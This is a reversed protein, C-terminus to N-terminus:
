ALLELNLTKLEFASPLLIAGQITQKRLLSTPRLFAYRLSSVGFNVSPFEYGADRLMKKFKSSRVETKQSQVESKPSGDESKSSRVESKRRRVKFKPSRVESKRRRVKFKPSRVKFKRRGEERKLSQNIFDVHM